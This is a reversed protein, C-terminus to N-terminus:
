RVLALREALVPQADSAFEMAAKWATEASGDTLPVVIRVLSVDSRRYQLLDPLLHLKARFEEAWVRRDNQYWYVVLIQQGSKELAYRNVPIGEPRGLVPITEITWSKTLWGAGPLCVRPSHPGYTNQLSKFYAIFMSLQAGNRQHRYDRLVYDDPQLQEMVLPELAQEQVM